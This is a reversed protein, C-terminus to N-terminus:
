SFWNWPFGVDVEDVKKEKEVGEGGGGRRGLSIALGIALRQKIGMESSSM